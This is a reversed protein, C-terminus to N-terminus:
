WASGAFFGLRPQQAALRVPPTVKAKAIKRKPRLKPEPKIPDDSPRFQAFTERIRAKASIEAVSMPAAVSTEAATTAAKAAQPPIITPISTDFVVREPWKRDSHIRVTPLDRATNTLDAVPGDAPVAKPLLANSAFLLALLVGGVFLFYRTLPM